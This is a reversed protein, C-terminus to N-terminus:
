PTRWPTAKENALSLTNWMATVRKEKSIGKINKLKM